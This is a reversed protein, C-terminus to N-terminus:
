DASMVQDNQYNQKLQFMRKKHEDADQDTVGDPTPAAQVGALPDTGTSVVSLVSEDASKRKQVKGLPVDKTAIAGSGMTNTAAESELLQIYDLVTKM